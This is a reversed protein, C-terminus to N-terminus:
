MITVEGYRPDRIKKLRTYDQTLKKYNINVFKNLEASNENGM